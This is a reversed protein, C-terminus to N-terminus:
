HSDEIRGDNLLSCKWNGADFNGRADVSVETSVTRSIKQNRLAARDQGFIVGAAGFVSLIM